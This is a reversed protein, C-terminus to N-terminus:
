RSHQRAYNWARRGYRLRKGTARCWRCPRSLRPNGEARHHGAGACVWCDRFPHAVCSAAYGLLALLVLGIATLTLTM